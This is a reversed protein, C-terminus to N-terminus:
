GFGCWTTISDVPERSTEVRNAPFDWDPYGIAISIIIRKSEPIDAAGRIVEPYMVGQDEICTGLGRSLAALCISQMVAGIDLLPVRDGVSRDVVIVIAAPADFFRFGREMWEKKKEDDDMSIGMLEFLQKALAIQRQRYVSGRPWGMLRHEPNPLVGARVKAINGRKAKEIVDGALVFFEWAQSNVASPARCAIRLTESLIERPVPDSKFGRISKRTMLTEPGDM